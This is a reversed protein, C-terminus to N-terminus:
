GHEFDGRSSYICLKFGLSFPFCTKVTLSHNKITKFFIMKWFLYTDSSVRWPLFWGLNGNQNNSLRGLNSLKFNFSSKIPVQSKNLLDFVMDSRSPGPRGRSGRSAPRSGRSSSCVSSPSPSEPSPSFDRSCRKSEKRWTCCKAIGIEPFQFITPFSALRYTSCTGARLEQSPPRNQDNHSCSADLSRWHSSQSRHSTHVCIVVHQLLQATKPITTMQSKPRGGQGWSEFISM